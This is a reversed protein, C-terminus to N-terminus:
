LSQRNTQLFIMDGLGSNLPCPLSHRAGAEAVALNMKSIETERGRRLDERMSSSNAATARLLDGLAMFLQDTTYAWRAGLEAAAVAGIEDLLGRLLRSDRSLPLEGNRCDLLATLPNVVCNLALKHWMRTVIEEKCGATLWAATLPLVLEPAFDEGEGLIGMVLQNEACAFVTDEELRAGGYLLGLHAPVAHLGNAVILVNAPELLNVSSLVGDVQQAKVALIIWDLRRPLDAIERVIKLRGCDLELRRDPLGLTLYRLRQRREDNRVVWHADIGNHVLTAALLSGIAGAGVLGIQRGDSM